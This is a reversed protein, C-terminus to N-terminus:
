RIKSRLKDSWINGSRKDILRADRFLPCKDLAIIRVPMEWPKLFTRIFDQHCSRCHRKCLSSRERLMLELINIM